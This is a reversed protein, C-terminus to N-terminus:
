KLLNQFHLPLWDIFFFIFAVLFPSFLFVFSWAVIDKKTIEKRSTSKPNNYVNYFNYVEKLNDIGQNSFLWWCYYVSWLVIAVWSVILYSNQYYQHLYFMFFPNEFQGKNQLFGFLLFIISFPLLFSIVYKKYEQKMSLIYKNQSELYLYLTLIFIIAYLMAVTIFWFLNAYSCNNKECIHAVTFSTLVFIISAITNISEKKNKM